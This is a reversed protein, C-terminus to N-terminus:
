IVIEKIIIETDLNGTVVLEKTYPDYEADYICSDRYNWWEAFKSVTTIWVNLDALDQKIHRIVSNAMPGFKEPHSYLMIPFNHLYCDEIIRSFSKKVFDSNFDTFNNEEMWISAREASFPNVPIQLTKSRSGSIFPYFPFGAAACGFDSTFLYGLDDLAKHLNLNWMGRPAAFWMGQDIGLIDLWQKCNHINELNSSYDTYLNHIDAHNGIEHKQDIGLLLSADKECLSKNVFFTIVFGNSIAADSIFKLNRGFAGDVDVRFTFVSQYKKPYYWLHVYPLGRFNFSRILINRLAQIIKHKDIAAARESFGDLLEFERLTDGVVMLLKALPLGTYWCGGKGYSQFIFVPFEDQIIGSKTKRNEHVSIKGLGIGNFVKGICSVRTKSSDLDSLDIYEIAMEFVCDVNFPLCMPNCDTVIGIGGTEMFESFWKPTYGEFVIVPCDPKDTIKHPVKEQECLTMWGYPKPTRENEPDHYIGVVIKM